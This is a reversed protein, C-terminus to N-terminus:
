QAFLVEYLGGRNISMEADPLKAVGCIFDFPGSYPLMELITQNGFWTRLVDGRKLECGRKLETTM